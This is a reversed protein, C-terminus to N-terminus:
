FCSSVLLRKIDEVPLPTPLYVPECSSSPRDSEYKARLDMLSGLFLFKATTNQYPKFRSNDVWEELKTLTPKDSKTPKLTNHVLYFEGIQSPNHDLRYLGKCVLAEQAITLREGLMDLWQEAKNSEVADLANCDGERILLANFDVLLMKKMEEFIGVVESTIIRDEDDDYRPPQVIAMEQRPYLEVECDIGEGHQIQFKRDMSFHLKRTWDIPKRCTRNHLEICKKLIDLSPPTVVVPADSSSSSSSSSRSSLMSRYSKLKGKLKNLQMETASSSSTPCSLCTGPVDPDEEKLGKTGCVGCVVAEEEDEDEEVTYAMVQKAIKRRRQNDNDLLFRVRPTDVINRKVDVSMEDAEENKSM